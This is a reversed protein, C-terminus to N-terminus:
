KLFSKSEDLIRNEVCAILEKVITNESSDLALRQQDPLIIEDVPLLLRSTSTIFSANMPDSLRRGCLIRINKYEACRIVMDAITGKLVKSPDAAFLDDNFVTFFNSTLGEMFEGSKADVVITEEYQDNALQQREAIWSTTKKAAEKRAEGFCAQISVKKKPDRKPLPENLAVVVNSDFSAVTVRQEEKWRVHEYLIRLIDELESPKMRLRNSHMSLSLIKTHEVTRMVSYLGDGFITM